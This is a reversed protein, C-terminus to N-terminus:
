YTEFKFLFGMENIGDPVIFATRGWEMFRTQFRDTFQAYLSPNTTLMALFDHLHAAEYVLKSQKSVQVKFGRLMFGLSNLHMFGRYVISVKMGTDTEASKLYDYFSEWDITDNANRGSVMYVHLHEDLRISPYKEKFDAVRNAVTRVAQIMELLTHKDMDVFVIQEPLAPAPQRGTPEGYIDPQPMNEIYM